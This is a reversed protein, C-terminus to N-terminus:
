VVSKRDPDVYLDFYNGTIVLMGGEPVYECEMKTFAVPPVSVNLTAEVTRDNKDTIKIKNDFVMPATYPVRIYIEGNIKMADGPMSLGVDNIVITDANNLNKGVIKIMQELHVDSIPADWNHPDVIKEIVIPGDDTHVLWTENDDCGTFFSSGAVSLPLLLLFLKKM